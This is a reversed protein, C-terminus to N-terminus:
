SMKIKADDILAKVELAKEYSLGDVFVRHKNHNHDRSGFATTDDIEAVLTESYILTCSEGPTGHELFHGVDAPTFPMYVKVIDDEGDTDVVNMNEDYLGIHISRKTNFMRNGIVMFYEGNRTQCIMKTKLDKAEM